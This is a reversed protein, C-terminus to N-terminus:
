RPPGAQASPGGGAGGPVTSQPTIPQPPTWTPKVEREKPEAYRYYTELTLVSMATVFPRGTNSLWKDPGDDWAGRICDKERHQAKILATTVAENVSRWSAGTPGEFEFLGLMSYYWLYTDRGFEGNGVAGAVKKAALPLTRNSCTPGGGDLYRNVYLGISTTAGHDDGTSSYGTSGDPGTVMGMFARLGALCKDPVTIGAITAARLAQVCAGTVSTDAGSSHAAPEYRWGSGQGQAGYLYGLAREAHRKLEPDKTMRYGECFAMTAFAHEYMRGGPSFSSSVRSSGSHQRELYKLAAGVTDGYRLPRGTVRDTVEVKSGPLYGATMFAIAALATTGVTPGPFHEDPCHGCSTVAEWSGERRQHRALWSLGLEVAEETAASGGGRAVLNARGSTTGSGFRLGGRGSGGGVGVVDNTGPPGATLRGRFGAADANQLVRELSTRTDGAILNPGDDGKAENRAAELADPFVVPPEDRGIGDSSPPGGSVPKYPREPDVRLASVGITIPIGALEAIQEHFIILPLVALIAAHFALSLVLGPSNKWATALARAALDDLPTGPNEGGDELDDPESHDPGRHDPQL